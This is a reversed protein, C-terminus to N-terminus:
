SKSAYQLRVYRNIFSALGFGSLAFSKMLRVNHQGVSSDTYEYRTWKGSKFYVIIRDPLSLDTQKVPSYSNLYPTIGPVIVPRYGQKRAMVVGQKTRVIYPNMANITKNLEIIM